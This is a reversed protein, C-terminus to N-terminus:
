RCQLHVAISMWGFSFDFVEGQPSFHETGQPETVPAIKQFGLGSLWVAINMAAGQLLSHAQRKLSAHVLAAPLLEGAVIGPVTGAM